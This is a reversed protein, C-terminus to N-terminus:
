RDRQDSRGAFVQPGYHRSSSPGKKPSQQDQAEAPLPVLESNSENIFFRILTKDAQLIIQAIDKRVLGFRGSGQGPLQAIALIGSSLDQAISSSVQLCHIAGSRSVFHFALRSAREPFFMNKKLLDVTLAQERLLRAEEEQQAANKKKQESQELNATLSRQQDQHKKAEIKQDYERDKQERVKDAKVGKQRDATRKERAKHDAKKRSKKDVLGAKLLKDRLNQM